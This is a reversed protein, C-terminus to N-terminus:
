VMLDIIFVLLLFLINNSLNALLIIIYLVSLIKNVLEKEKMTLSLVKPVGRTSYLNM